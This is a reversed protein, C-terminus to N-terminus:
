KRAKRSLRWRMSSVPKSVINKLTILRDILAYLKSGRTMETSTVPVEPNYKQSHPLIVTHSYDGIHDGTWCNQNEPQSDDNECVSYFSSIHKFNLVISNSERGGDRKMAGGCECGNM